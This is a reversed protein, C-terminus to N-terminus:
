GVTVLLYGATFPRVRSRFWRNRDRAVSGRLAALFLSQPWRKKRGQWTPWKKSQWDPSNVENCWRSHPPLIPICSGHGILKPCGLIAVEAAEQLLCRRRRRM